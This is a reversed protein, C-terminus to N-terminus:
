IKGNEAKIKKKFIPLKAEYDKLIKIVEGSLPLICLLNILTMIGLGFDALSWVFLNQEIGGIYVMFIVLISYVTKLYSKGSIYNLANRGYYAVGLITSLCFFFLIVISFIVGIKGIHNSLATQFLAMESVKGISSTDGLLIVFATASCIILTDVFVGLIQVFGQEVGNDTAVVASAYTSNGSGAENSFLGRKVGHIITAGITGGLFEKGGFAQYFINLFVSPMSTINIILIYLVVVLYLIAMLPVIKNLSEIIVDKKGKMLLIIGVISAIIISIMKPSTSVYASTISDTITNSMVQIVGLYCVISSVVFIAGLSKLGLRDKIIWPTGGTMQGDENRVHYKVALVSEVFATASGLIAMLWMWFLSGPGGVSVAAVVGAINGAGVRCATGLFLSELSSIGDKSQKSENKLIKLIRGFLRLQIFRTRITLYLGSGVLLIVLLNKNWMINNVFEVLVKLDFWKLLTEYSM